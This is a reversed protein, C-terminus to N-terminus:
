SCMDGFVRFGMRRITHPLYDGDHNMVEGGITMGDTAAGLKDYGYGSASGYQHRVPDNGHPGWDSILVRLRGAGDLPYVVVIRALQNIRATGNGNAVPCVVWSTRARSHYMMTRIQKETATTM